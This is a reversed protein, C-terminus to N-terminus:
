DVPKEKPLPITLDPKFEEFKRADLEKRLQLNILSIPPKYSERIKKDSELQYQSVSYDDLLDWLGGKLKFNIQINANKM